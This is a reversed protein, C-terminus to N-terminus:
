LPDAPHDLLEQLLSQLHLIRSYIPNAAIESPSISLDGFLAKEVNALEDEAIDQPNKIQKGNGALQSASKALCRCASALEDAAKTEPQRLAVTLARTGNAIAAYLALRHRVSPSHGV